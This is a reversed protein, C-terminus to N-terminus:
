AARLPLGANQWTFSNQNPLKKNCAVRPWPTAKQERGFVDSVNPVIGPKLVMFNDAGQEADTEEDDNVDQEPRELFMDKDLTKTEGRACYTPLM